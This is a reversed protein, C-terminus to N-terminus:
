HMAEVLVLTVNPLTSKGFHNPSGLNSLYESSVRLAGLDMIKLSFWTKALKIRWENMM